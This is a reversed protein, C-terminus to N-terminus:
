KLEILGPPLYHARFAAQFEDWMVQHEAPQMALFSNYWAGSPGHLCQGAFRAKQQETAPCYVSSPSLSGFGTMLMWPIWPPPSSQRNYHRLTLTVSRKRFVDNNNQTALESPPPAGHTAGQASMEPPTVMELATEFKHGKENMESQVKQFTTSRSSYFM